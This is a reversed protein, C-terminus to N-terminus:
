ALQRECTCISFNKVFLIIRLSFVEPDIVLSILFKRRIRLTPIRAHVKRNVRHGLINRKHAYTFAFRVAQARM